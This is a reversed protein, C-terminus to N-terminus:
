LFLDDGPQTGGDRFGNATDAAFVDLLQDLVGGGHGCADEMSCFFGPLLDRGGAHGIIRDLM